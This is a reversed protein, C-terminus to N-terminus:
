RSKMHLQTGSIKMEITSNGTNGVDDEVLCTHNGGDVAHLLDMMISPQMAQELVFCRGSCTSTWTTDVPGFRGDARCTLMVASGPAYIPGQDPDSDTISVPIQFATCLFPLFVLVQHLSIIKTPNLGVKNSTLLTSHQQISHLQSLQLRSHLPASILDKM